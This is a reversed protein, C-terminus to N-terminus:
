VVEEGKAYRIPKEEQGHDNWFRWVGDEKGQRYSGESAVKGNEHFSKWVGVELGDDYHGESSVVGNEHYAVFLGHRMWKQGDSSLRRSYRFKIKGNAYPIEAINLAEDGPAPAPEKSKFLKGFM